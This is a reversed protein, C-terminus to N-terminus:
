QSPRSTRPLFGRIRPCREYLLAIENERPTPPEFQAVRQEYPSKPATRGCFSAIPAVGSFISARSSAPSATESPTPMEPQLINTSTFVPRIPNGGTAEVDVVSKSPRLSLSNSNLRIDTVSATKRSTMNTMRNVFNSLADASGTLPHAFEPVMKLAHKADDLVKDICDHDGQPLEDRVARLNEYRAKVEQRVSNFRNFLGADNKHKTQAYARELAGLEFELDRILRRAHRSDMMPPNDYYMRRLHVSLQKFM